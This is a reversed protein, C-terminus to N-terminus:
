WPEVHEGDDVPLDDYEPGDYGPEDPYPEAGTFSDVRDLHYTIPILAQTRGRLTDDDIWEFRINSMLPLDRGAFSGDNTERLDTLVVQGPNIKFILMHVWGDEAHAHGNEVVIRKGIERIEWVGDIPLPDLPEVQDVTPLLAPIQAQATQPLATTGLSLAAAAIALRKATTCTM